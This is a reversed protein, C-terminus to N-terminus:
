NYGRHRFYAELIEAHDFALENNRILQKVEDITYLKAEKADDGGRPVGYGKGIYVASIMHDRPDRDPKSKFLFPKEPSELIVDLNTEEKAEKIANEEASLGFDHFGGPLAWGHPPNKRKVLVISGNIKSEPPVIGGAVYIPREEGCYEIIIDTTPIPNRQEQIQNAAPM